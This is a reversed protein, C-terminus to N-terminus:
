WDHLDLIEAVEELLGYHPAITLAFGKEQHPDRKITEKEYKKHADVDVWLKYVDMEASSSPQARKM